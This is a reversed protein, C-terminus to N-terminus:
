GFGKSVPKAGKKGKKGMRRAKRNGFAMNPDQGPAPASGPSGDNKMAMKGMNRMMMKMRQFDNIFDEAQMRENGGDASSLRTGSACVRARAHGTCICAAANPSSSLSLM